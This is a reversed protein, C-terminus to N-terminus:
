SPGASALLLECLEPAAHKSNIGPETLSFSPGVGSVEEPM